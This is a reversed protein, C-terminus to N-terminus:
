ASIFFTNFGASAANAANVNVTAVGSYTVTATGSRGLQNASMTYQLIQGPATGQDLYDLAAAGSIAVPGQIPDLGNGPGGVKVLSGFHVGLSGTTKQVDVTGISEINTIAGPPTDNVAFTGGPGFYEVTPDVGSGFAIPAPALGTIAYDF